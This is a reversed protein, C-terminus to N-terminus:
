AACPLLRCYPDPAMRGPSAQAEPTGFGIDCVPGVQGGSLEVQVWGQILPPPGSSGPGPSMGPEPSPSPSPFPSSESVIRVAM